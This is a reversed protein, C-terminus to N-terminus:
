KRKDKGEKAKPMKVVAMFEGFTVAGPRWQKSAARLKGKKTTM